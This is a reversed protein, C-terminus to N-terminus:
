FKSLSCNALTDSVAERDRRTPIIDRRKAEFLSLLIAGVTLDPFTVYERPLDSSGACDEHRDKPAEQITRAVIGSRVIPAIRYRRKSALFRLNLSVRRTELAFSKSVIWSWSLSWELRIPRFRKRFNSLRFGM